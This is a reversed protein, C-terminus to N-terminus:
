NVLEIEVRRNKKRGEETTNNEIPRSEGYGEYILRSHDIGKKILYDVVSKARNRSLNFNYIDSGNSDTHGTIKLKIKPYSELLNYVKNLVVKGNSKFDSKKKDFYLNKLIIKVHENEENEIEKILANYSGHDYSEKSTSNFELHSKNLSIEGPGCDNSATWKGKMSWDELNVILEGSKICWFGNLKINEDTIKTEQFYFVGSKIEGSLELIGFNDTNAIEIRSLGFISDGRQELEMFFAYSSALANGTPQTLVGQWTGQINQANITFSLGIIFIHLIIKKMTFYEKQLLFLKISNDRKSCRLETVKKEQKKEAEENTPIQTNGCIPCFKANTSIQRKCDPCEIFAM